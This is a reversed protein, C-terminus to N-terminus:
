PLLAVIREIFGDRALFRLYVAVTILFRFFGFNRSPRVFFDDTVKDIDKPNRAVYDAFRPVNQLQISM